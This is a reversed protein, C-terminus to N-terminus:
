KKHKATNLRNNLSDLNQNTLILQRKLGKFELEYPKAEIISKIQSKDINIESNLQKYGYITSVLLSAIAIGIAIISYHKAQRSNVRAEKLEIFDILSSIADFLAVVNTDSECVVNDNRIIPSILRKFKVVTKNQQEERETTFHKYNSILYDSEEINLYNNTYYFNIIESWNAGIPGKDAIFAILRITIDDNNGFEQSFNRMEKVKLFNM